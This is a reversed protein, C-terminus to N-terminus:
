DRLKSEKEIKRLFKKMERQIKNLERERYERMLTKPSKPKGM